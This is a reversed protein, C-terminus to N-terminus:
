TNEDSSESLLDIKLHLSNLYEVRKTETEPSSVHATSFHASLDKM